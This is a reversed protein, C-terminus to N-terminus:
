LTDLGTTRTFKAYFETWHAPANEYKTVIVLHRCIYMSM